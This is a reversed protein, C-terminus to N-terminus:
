LKEQFKIKESLWNTLSELSEFHVPKGQWVKVMTIILFVCAAVSFIAGGLKAWGTFNDIIGLLITVALIAAHVAMGQAAHFRVKTESQPVFLLQLISAILGIYFPAYSLIMLINEPIGVAAVKRNTPKDIQPSHPDHLTAPTQAQPQAYAYNNYADNFSGNEYRRTPEESFLPRGNFVKTEEGADPLVQTQQSTSAEATHAARKPFDPDLPNTDYKSAM